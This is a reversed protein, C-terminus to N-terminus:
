DQDADREHDHDPHDDYREDRDDYDDDNESDDALASAAGRGKFHKALLFMEVSEQRSSGPKIHIVQKFNQKLM